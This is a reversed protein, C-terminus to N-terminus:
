PEDFSMRVCSLGDARCLAFLPEQFWDRAKKQAPLSDSPLASGAGRSEKKGTVDDQVRGM